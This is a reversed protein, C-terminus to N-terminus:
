PLFCIAHTRGAKERFARCCEFAGFRPMQAFGPNITLQVATKSKQSRKTLANPELRRVLGDSENIRKM